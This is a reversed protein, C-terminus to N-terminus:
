VRVGAARLASVAEEAAMQKAMKKTSFLLHSDYSEGDVECGASFSSGASSYIYTAEPKRNRQCYRNLISVWDTETEFGTRAYYPTLRALQTSANAPATAEPVAGAATTDDEAFSNRIEALLKQGSGADRTAGYEVLAQTLSDSLVHDFKAFQDQFMNKMREAGFLNETFSTVSDSYAKDPNIAKGSSVSGQSGSSHPFEYEISATFRAKIGLKNCILPLADRHAGLEQRIKAAISERSFDAGQDPISESVM